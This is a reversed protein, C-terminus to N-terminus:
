SINVVDTVLQLIQTCKISESFFKCIQVLESLVLFHDFFQIGPFLLHQTVSNFLPKYQQPATVM